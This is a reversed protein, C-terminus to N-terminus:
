HIKLDTKGIDKEAAEEICNKTHEYEETTSRYIKELKQTLRWSYLLYSGENELSELNSITKEISLRNEKNIEKRNKERKEQSRLMTQQRMKM